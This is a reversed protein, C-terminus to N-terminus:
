RASRARQRDSSTTVGARAFSIGPQSATIAAASSWPASPLLMLPAPGDTNASQRLRREAPSHASAMCAAHWWAPSADVRRILGASQGPALVSHGVGGPGQAADRAVGGVVAELHAVAAVAAAREVHDVVEIAQTA